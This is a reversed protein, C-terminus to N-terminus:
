RAGPRVPQTSKLQWHPTEREAVKTMPRTMRAAENCDGEIGGSTRARFFPPMCPAYAKTFAFLWHMPGFMDHTIEFKIIYNGTGVTRVYISIDIAPSRAPGSLCHKM